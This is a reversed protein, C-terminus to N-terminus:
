TDHIYVLIRQYFDVKVTEVISYKLFSISIESINTIASAMIAIM